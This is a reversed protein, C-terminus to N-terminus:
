FLLYWYLAIEESAPDLGRYLCTDFGALKLGCREYLRCAAVNNDQTELMIGPCGRAKAWAIAQAMLAQGVGERRASVDVVIDEIYAYRNWYRCLRLQGAVREDLYALYIARDPNAIYDAPVFADQSYRKEYPPVERISYHIIGQQASLVLQSTIQFVGDCCNLDRIRETTLEKISLTM